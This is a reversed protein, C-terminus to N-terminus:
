HLILFQVFQTQPKNTDSRVWVGILAGNNRNVFVRKPDTKWSNMRLLTFCANLLPKSLQATLNYVILM